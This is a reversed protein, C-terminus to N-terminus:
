KDEGNDISTSNGVIPCGFVPPQLFGPNDGRCISRLALSGRNEGDHGRSTTIGGSFLCIGSESFALVHGSTLVGFRLAEIASRDIFTCGPQLQDAFQTLPTDTWGDAESAPCFLGIQIKVQDSSDELARNFERLTSWSCPCKPHLFLVLTPSNASRDVDTDAPWTVVTEANAGPTNSYAAIALTGGLVALGWVSLTLKAFGPLQKSQNIPTAIQQQISM